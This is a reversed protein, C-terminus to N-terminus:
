RAGGGPANNGNMIKYLESNKDLSVETDQNNKKTTNTNNDDKTLNNAIDAGQHYSRVSSDFDEPNEIVGSYRRPNRNIGNLTIKISQNKDSTVILYFTNSPNFMQNGAIFQVLFNTDDHISFNEINSRVNYLCSASVSLLSFIHRGERLDLTTVTNEELKKVLINRGLDLVSSEKNLIRKYSVSNTYDDPTICLYVVRRASNVFTAPYFHPINEVKPLVKNDGITPTPGEKNSVSDTVDNTKFVDEENRPSGNYEIPIEEVADVKKIPNKISDLFAHYKLIIERTAPLLKAGTVPDYGDSSYFKYEGKIGVSYYQLSKGTEPDFYVNRSVLYSVLCISALALLFIARKKEKDKIPLPLFSWIFGKIPTGFFVVLLIFSIVKVLLMDLGTFARVQSELWIFVGFLSAMTLFVCLIFIALVIAIGKLVKERLSKITENSVGMWQLFDNIAKM